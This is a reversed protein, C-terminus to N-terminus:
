RPGGSFSPASEAAAVLGQFADAFDSFSNKLVRRLEEKYTSGTRFATTLSAFLKGLFPIGSEVQAGAKAEAAFARTQEHKEVREEFWNRLNSLHVDELELGRVQLKALLAEALAFYVDAYDLNNTDLTQVVDLLVVEFAGPGQIRAALQRLETSKGSGRHGCFLACYRPGSSRLANTTPDV